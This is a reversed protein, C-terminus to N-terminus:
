SQPNVPLYDEPGVQVVTLINSGQLYKKIDFPEMAAPGVGKRKILVHGEKAKFSGKAWEATVFRGDSRPIKVEVKLNWKKRNWLWWCLGGVAVLAFLGVIAVTIAIYVFSQSGSAISSFTDGGFIPM